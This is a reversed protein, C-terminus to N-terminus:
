DPGVARKRDQGSERVQLKLSFPLHFINKHAVEVKPGVFGTGFGIASGAAATTSLAAIFAPLGRHRFNV